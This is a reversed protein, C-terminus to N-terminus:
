GGQHQGFLAGADHQQFGLRDAVGRGAAVAAHAVVAKGLVVAHQHSLEALVDGVPEIPGEVGPDIRDLAQHRLLLDVAAERADALDLQRGLGLM